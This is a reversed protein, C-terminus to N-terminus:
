YIYTILHIQINQINEDDIYEQDGIRITFPITAFDMQNECGELGYLDSATDSVLHWM